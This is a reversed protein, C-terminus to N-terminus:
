HSHAPSREHDSERGKSEPRSSLIESALSIHRRGYDRLIEAAEKLSSAGRIEAFKILMPLNFGSLVEVRSGVFSLAVNSPTGGFLDTLVLVGPGADVEKIAESLERVMEEVPTAPDMSVARVAELPGLIMEATKVMEQAVRCHAAVVLGIRSM